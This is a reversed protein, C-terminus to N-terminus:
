YNCCRTASYWICFLLVGCVLDDDFAGNDQLVREEVRFFHSNLAYIMLTIANAYVLRVTAENTRDNDACIHQKLRAIVNMCNAVEVPLGRELTSGKLKCIADKYHTMM